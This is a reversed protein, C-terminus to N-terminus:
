GKEMFHFQRPWKQLKKMIEPRSKRLASVETTWWMQLGRPATTCYIDKLDEFRKMVAGDDMDVGQCLKEFDAASLRCDERLGLFGLTKQLASNERAM